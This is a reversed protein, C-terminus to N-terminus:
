GLDPIDPLCWECMSTHGDDGQHIVDGWYEACFHDLPEDDERGMDRVMMWEVGLLVAVVLIVLLTEM